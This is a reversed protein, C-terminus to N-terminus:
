GPSTSACAALFSSPKSGSQRIFAGESAFNDAGSQAPRWSIANDGIDYQGGYLTPPGEEEDALTSLINQLLALYEASEPSKVLMLPVKAPTQLLLNLGNFLRAQVSAFCETEAAPVQSLLHQFRETDPQLARWELRNNTLTITNKQIILLPM